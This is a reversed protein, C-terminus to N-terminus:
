SVPSPNEVPLMPDPTQGLDYVERYLTGQQLLDDLSETVLLANDRLAVVKTAKRALSLRHTVIFTTRGRMLRELSEVVAAEARVDLASTPEDLLLIPADKLFARAIAIRQRQGVSLRTGREGVQMQYGQPLRSIFDHAGAAKAAEVIEDFPATLRGYAINEAITSDLLLTDQLVISVNERLGRLQFDRCDTGDLFIAGATPDYFRPILSLLTTKGIGSAGIIAVTEGPLVKLNLHSFVPQAPDYGFSVERLEIEGRARKLPLAGPTDRIDEPTDLLAFVRQAGAIAWGVSWSSYSLTQLPGYLMELYALFVVLVGTTIQGQLAHSTGLYTVSALGGATVGGVVLASWLQTMTLRLNSWYSQQCIRAFKEAEYEERAFAQVLRVSALGGEVSASVSGEAAHFESTAQRIRDAYYKTVLVQMPVIGASLLTLQWDVQLLTAVIGVVTACASLVPIFGDNFFTQIAYVNTNLTYVSDGIRNRDHFWFSLRQLHRFLEYRVQALVRLGIRALMAKSLLNFSSGSLHIVLIGGCLALLLRSKDSGLLALIGRDFWSDATGTSLVTDIIVKLPWPKLLEAGIGVAILLLGLMLMPWYGRFYGMIRLCFRIASAHPQMATIVSASM